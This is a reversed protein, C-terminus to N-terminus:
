PLTYQIMPLWPIYDPLPNQISLVMSKKVQKSMWSLSTLLGGNSKDSAVVQEPELGRSCTDTDDDEDDPIDEEFQIIRTLPCGGQSHDIIRSRQSADPCTTGEQLTALRSNPSGQGDRQLSSEERAFMEENTFDCIHVLIIDIDIDIDIRM